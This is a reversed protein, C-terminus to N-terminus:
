YRGYQVGCYSTAAAYDNARDRDDLLEQLASSGPVSWQPIAAFIEKARALRRQREDATENSHNYRAGWRGPVPEYFYRRIANRDRDSEKDPCSIVTTKNLLHLEKKLEKLVAGYDAAIAHILNFINSLKGTYAVGQAEIDSAIQAYINPAGPTANKALDGLRQALANNHELFHADLAKKVNEPPQDYDMVIAALQTVLTEVKKDSIM